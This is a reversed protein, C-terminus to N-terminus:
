WPYTRYRHIESDMTQFENSPWGWWESMQSGFQFQISSTSYVRFHSNFRYDTNPLMSTPTLSVVESEDYYGNGPYPDDDVDFYPDPLDSYFDWAASVTTNNDNTCSIDFTYYWDDLNAYNHINAIRATSFNFRAQPKVWLQNSTDTYGYMATNGYEPSFNKKAYTSDWSVSPSWGITAAYSAVTLSLLCVTAFFITLLRKKIM